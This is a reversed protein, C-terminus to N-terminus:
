EDKLLAFDLQRKILNAKVVKIKLKDGIKYKKNSYHAILTTTEEEFYFFDDAIDRILIMGEIKYPFIEVYIGWETIGSIFGDFIEGVRDKMFEVAKYKISSREASMAKHEMESSHICKQEIQKRNASKGNHLYSELLRHVIMDPYRRIPSTFHTYFKFGLGYHGVNDTTYLARSMSRIAYSAIVDAEPKDKIDEFLKNISNAITKRNKLSIDYGMKEAFNKFQKLKEYDPEDHVRYVFTKANQDGRVHGIKEAVKKNAVLMLEEILKNAEKSKKYEVKIPKGKEDIEFRLEGRDFSIAGSNFRKQRLKTSIDNFIKIEEAYEGEGTEIVKQVEEYSFRRDSNIITRGIWTRKIVADKDFVVVTSFTLKDTHANLSCVNNSLAEPLMPVVRDVLYVSTARQYAEKDILSGEKVYHTVDAIHIGIEYKDDSIKRISIADDFDKADAPDITITLVDRFDRRKKIEEKTIETPIKEAALEVEEPFKYPLGFEALIAHMETNHDGSKGLVDIVEGIPNKAYEPWDYIKVIVKDGHKAKKLRKLPIFIDYPMLKNDVSCFAFTESKMITGVFTPRNRKIIKTIEGELESKNSKAFISVEVIDKDLAKHLRKNSIHINEGLEESYVVPTKRSSLDVIGTTIKKIQRLRYKGRKVETILGEKRLKILIKNVSRQKAATTQGIAKSIQKYNYTQTHNQRFIDIIKQKLKNKDSEM